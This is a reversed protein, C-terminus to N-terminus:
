EALDIRGDTDRSPSRRMRQQESARNCGDDDNDPWAPQQLSEGQSQRGGHGHL